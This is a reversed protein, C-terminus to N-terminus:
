DREVWRDISWMVALAMGPDVGDAVDVTYTDKITVWKQTIQIIPKGGSSVTYNKEVLSGEVLWPEGSPVYLTMRSRIPSFTQAKLEGVETGNADTITMRKPIGLLKGRVQYVVQDGAKVDALPRPGMKGDVFYRQEETDPDLVAFDRGAGFKSKVLFRSWGAPAPPLSAM